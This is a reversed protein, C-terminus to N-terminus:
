SEPALIPEIVTESEVAFRLQPQAVKKGNVLWYAIGIDASDALGVTITQGKFYWGEYDGREPYGDVKLKIKRDGAIRCSLIAELNFYEMIQKRIFDPRYRCFRGMEDISELNKRDLAQLLSRYYAVRSLLFDRTIRHNMLDTTLRVFENRFPPSEHILRRLLVSRVDTARPNVASEFPHKEWIHEPITKTRFDYHFWFSRDMDWNIWFWRGDPDKLDLAAVGQINDDTGCFVFSFKNRSLNDLDVRQAAAERTMRVDPNEVWRKLEAYHKISEPNSSGRYSFFLFDNHKFHSQWQRRGLHESLFHIGELEGNFLLLAPKIDPTKCGMRRAIDFALCTTFPKERPWDLHVVLRKLPDTELSFIGPAFRNAGYEKRFYLRYSTRNKITRSSGGHLRLGAASAFLLKGDEYYSVYALREWERGRYRPFKLLGTEPDNLEKEDIVISILPWGPKFDTKDVVRSSPLDAFGGPNVQFAYDGVQRKKSFLIADKPNERHSKHEARRNEAAVAKVVGMQKVIKGFTGYDLIATPVSQSQLAQKAPAFWGSKEVFYGGLAVTAPILLLPLIARRM